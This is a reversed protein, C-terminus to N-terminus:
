DTFFRASPIQEIPPANAPKLPEADALGPGWAIRLTGLTEAPALIERERWRLAVFPGVAGDPAVVVAWRTCPTAATRALTAARVVAPEPDRVALAALTASLENPLEERCALALAATTRVRASPDHLAGALLPDATRPSLWALAGAACARVAPDRDALLRRTADTAPDRDPRHRALAALALCRDGGSLRRDDTWTALRAVTAPDPATWKPATALAILWPRRADAALPRAFQGAAAAGLWGPGREGLSAAARLRRAPDPDALAAHWAERDQEGPWPKDLMAPHEPLDLAALLRRAELELPPELGRDLAARLAPRAAAGLGLLADLAAARLSEDRLRAVLGEALAPGPNPRRAIAEAVARHSLNRPPADFLRLLDADVDPGPLAGFAALFSRSVYTEDGTQLARLLAPASRPDRLRALADATETRVQPDPDVLLRSLALAGDGPGLLGLGAAASRRVTPSADALKAILNARVAPQQDKPWIALAFTRASEARVAEDPDRLAALFLPLRGPDPDLAVVRLAAIRLAPDTLENQWIKRAPAACAVLQRELCAALAERRVSGSRDELAELLVPAALPTPFRELERVAAARRSEPVIRVKDDPAARLPEAVRAVESPWLPWRRPEAAEAPLATLALLVLAPARRPV